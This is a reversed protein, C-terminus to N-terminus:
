PRADAVEKAAHALRPMGLASASAIVILAIAVGERAALREGLVVFALFAGVAPSLSLLIGFAQVTLRRLVIVDLAYPLLSSLVAVLLGALLLTPQRTLAEGDLKVTVPLVLASGVTLALAVGSLDEFVRGTAKSLLVYAARASAACLGLAVGVLPLDAGSGALLLTGSLAACGAAFHSRRRSAALALLLPGLLELASAVGIPLHRTANFYTVNMVALCVGFAVANRVQARTLSRVRPRTLVVLILAAGCLRLGALGTPTLEDYLAKAVVAGLQLSTIQAAM